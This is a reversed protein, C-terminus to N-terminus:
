YIVLWTTNEMRACNLFSLMLQFYIFSLGALCFPSTMYTSVGAFAKIIYLSSPSPPHTAQLRYYYRFIFMLWFYGVEKL